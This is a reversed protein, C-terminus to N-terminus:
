IRQNCWTGNTDGWSNHATPYPCTEMKTNTQKMKQTNWLKMFIKTLIKVNLYM